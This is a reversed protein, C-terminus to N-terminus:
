TLKDLSEFFMDVYRFDAQLAMERSDDVKFPDDIDNAMALRKSFWGLMMEDSKM